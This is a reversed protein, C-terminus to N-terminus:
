EKIGSSNTAVYRTAAIYKTDQCSGCRETDKRGKRKCALKKTPSFLDFIRRKEKFLITRERLWGVDSKNEAFSNIFLASTSASSSACRCKLQEFNQSASFRPKRLRQTRTQLVTKGEAYVPPCSSRQSVTTILVPYGYLTKFHAAVAQICQRTCLAHVGSHCLNRKGM